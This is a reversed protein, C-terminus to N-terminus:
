SARSPSPPNSPPNSSELESELELELSDATQVNSISESRQFNVVAGPAYTDIGDVNMASIAFFQTNQMMCPATCHRGHLFNSSCLLAGVVTGQGVLFCM